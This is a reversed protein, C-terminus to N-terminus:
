FGMSGAGTVFGSVADTDLASGGEVPIVFGFEGVLLDAVELTLDLAVLVL